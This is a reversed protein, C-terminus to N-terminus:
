CFNRKKIPLLTLPTTTHHNQSVVGFDSQVIGDEFNIQRTTSSPSGINELDIKEPSKSPTHTDPNGLNVPIM